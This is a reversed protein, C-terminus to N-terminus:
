HAETNMHKHTIHVCQGQFFHINSGIFLHNWIHQTSACTCMISVNCKASELNIYACNKHKWHPLLLLFLKQFSPSSVTRWSYKMPVPDLLLLPSAGEMKECAPYVVLKGGSSCVGSAGGGSMHATQVLAGERERGAEGRELVLLTEEEQM